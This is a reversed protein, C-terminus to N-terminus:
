LSRRAMCMPCLRDHCFNAHHLTWKGEGSVPYRFTLFEGCYDVNNARKDFNPLLGFEDLIQKDSYGLVSLENFRRGLRDFSSVLIKSKRKRSAFSRNVSKSNGSQGNVEYHLSQLQEETISYHAQKTVVNVGSSASHPDLEHPKKEKESM